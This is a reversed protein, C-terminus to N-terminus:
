FSERVVWVEVDGVSLIHEKTLALTSVRHAKLVCLDTPSSKHRVKKPLCSLECTDGSGLPLM